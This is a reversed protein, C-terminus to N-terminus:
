NERSVQSIRFGYQVARGARAKSMSHLGERHSWEQQENVNLWDPGIAHGAWVLGRLQYDEPLAEISRLDESQSQQQVSRATHQTTPYARIVLNLYAAIDPWALEGLEFVLSPREPLSTAEKEFLTIFHIFCLTVSVFALSEELFGSDRCRRLCANTSALFIKKAITLLRRVNEFECMSFPGAEERLGQYATLKAHEATRYCAIRLPNTTSKHGLMASINAVALSVGYEQWSFAEQSKLLAVATEVAELLEPQPTSLYVLAHLKCFAAEASTTVLSPGDEVSVVMRCWEQLTEEANLFPVVCTLSKRYAALKHLGSRSLIALHHYLRGIYPHRNSAKLYWEEAVGAWHTHKEQDGEIAMRYRALDGLCEIWCDLFRPITEYFLAMVQYALYIHSILFNRLEARHLLIDLLAQIGHRWIRSLMQLRSPLARIEPTAAVHDCALLFDVHWDLLTRHLNVATQWHNSQSTCEPTYSTCEPTNDFIICRAEAVVLGAYIDKIEQLLQDANIPLSELQLIM